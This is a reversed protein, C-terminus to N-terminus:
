TMEGSPNPHLRATAEEAMQLLVINLLLLISFDSNGYNNGSSFQNFDNRLYTLMKGRVIKLLFLLSRTVTAIANFRSPHSLIYTPM